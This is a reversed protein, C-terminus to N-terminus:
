VHDGGDRLADEIQRAIQDGNNTWLAADLEHVLRGIEEFPEIYLRPDTPIKYAFACCERLLRDVESVNEMLQARLNLEEEITLAANSDSNPCPSSSRKPM